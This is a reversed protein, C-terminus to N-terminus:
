VPVHSADDVLKRLGHKAYARPTGQLKIYHKYYHLKVILSMEWEACGEHMLCDRWRLIRWKCTRLTTRLLQKWADPIDLHKWHYDLYARSRGRQRANELWYRRLLRGPDFHHELVADPVFAIRYGAEALQWSFLTDEGFGLRGAGLEPDFGPVAKLVRRAFAFNGGLASTVYGPQERSIVGMWARHRDTMWPRNLHSPIVCPGTAADAYGNLVPACLKALWDPRPILDDDTIAIVDGRACVIGTNKANALGPEPQRVYRVSMNPLSCSEIVARTNDTSGNDVVVLEVSTGPVMSLNGMADLTRRLHLARNRTCIIISIDM